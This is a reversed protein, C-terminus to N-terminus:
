SLDREFQIGTADIFAQYDPDHKVPHADFQLAARMPTADIYVVGDSEPLLRAARPPSSKHLVGLALLAVVAVLILAIGSRWNIPLSKRTPPAITAFATEGVKTM